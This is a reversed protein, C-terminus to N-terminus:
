KKRRTDIEAGNVWGGPNSGSGSAPGGLPKVWGPPYVSPDSPNQYPTGGPIESPPVLGDKRGRSEKEGEAESLVWDKVDRVAKGCQRVSDELAKRCGPTLM